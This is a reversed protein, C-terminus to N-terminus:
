ESEAAEHPHELLQEALFNLTEILIKQDEQSCCQFKWILRQLDEHELAPQEPFLTNPPIGLRVVLKVLTDYTPNKRGCEIDQITKVALQTQRALEQQTLNCLKRATFVRYGLHKLYADPM